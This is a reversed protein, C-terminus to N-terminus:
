AVKGTETEPFWKPILVDLVYMALDPVLDIDGNNIVDSLGKIWDEHKDSGWLLSNVKDTLEYTAATKKTINLVNMAKIVLGSEDALHRGMLRNTHITECEKPSSLFDLSVEIFEEGTWKHVEIFNKTEIQGFYYWHNYVNGANITHMFLNDHAKAWPQVNFMAPDDCNMEVTIRYVCDGHFSPDHFHGQETLSVANKYTIVQGYKGRGTAVVGIVLGYQKIGDISDINTFHYMTKTGTSIQNRLVNQTIKKLAKQKRKLSKLHKKNQKMTVELTKIPLPVLEGVKLHIIQIDSGYDAFM